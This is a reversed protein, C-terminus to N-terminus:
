ILSGSTERIKNKQPFLLLLKKIEEVPKKVQFKEMKREFFYFIFLYISLYFDSSFFFSFEQMKKIGQVHARLPYTRFPKKQQSIIYSNRIKHKIPQLMMTIKDFMKSFSLATSRRYKVSCETVTLPILAFWIYTSLCM